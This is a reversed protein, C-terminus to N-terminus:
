GEPFSFSFFFGVFFLCFCGGLVGLSMIGNLRTSYSAFQKILCSLFWFSLSMMKKKASLM